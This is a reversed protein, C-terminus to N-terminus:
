CSVGDDGEDEEANADVVDEHDSLSEVRQTLCDFQHSFSRFRGESNEEVGAM